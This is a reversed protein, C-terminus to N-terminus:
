SDMVVRTKTSGFYGAVITTMTFPRMQAAWPTAAAALAPPTPVWVGPGSGPTYPIDAELGDGTRAAILAAAAAEGVAVGAEKASADAVITALSSTFRADLDSQQAPFYSVLVRHAAAIAAAEVSANSPGTGRYYFPRYQGTIANVADYTALSAYAFWVASVGPGKGGNKVITTSAIANWDTAVNAAILPFALLSVLSINRHTKM